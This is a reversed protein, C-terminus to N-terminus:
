SGTRRLLLVWPPGHVATKTVFIASYAKPKMRGPVKVGATMKRSGIGRECSPEWRGEILSNGHDASKDSSGGDSDGYQKGNCALGLADRTANLPTGPISFPRCTGDPSNDTAHDAADDASYCADKADILPRAEARIHNFLPARGILVIFIHSNSRHKGVLTDGIVIHRRLIAHVLVSVGDHITAGHQDVWSGVADDLDDLLSTVIDGIHRYSM